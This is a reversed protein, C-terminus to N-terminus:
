QVSSWPGGSVLSCGRCLSCEGVLVQELCSRVTDRTRHGWGRVRDVELMTTARHGIGKALSRLASCSQTGSPKQSTGSRSSGPLEAVSPELLCRVTHSEPSARAFFASSARALPPNTPPLDIPPPPNHDLSGPDVLQTPTPDLSYRRTSNHDLSSGPDVAPNPDLSSGPELTEGQPPSTHPDTSTSKFHLDVRPVRPAPLM